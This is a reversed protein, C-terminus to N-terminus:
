FSFGIEDVGAFTRSASTTLNGALLPILFCRFLCYIPSTVLIRRVQGKIGPFQNSEILDGAILRCPIKERILASMTHRRGALFNGIPLCLTCDNVIFFCSGHHEVRFDLYLGRIEFFEPFCARVVNWSVQGAPSDYSFACHTDIPDLRSHEWSTYLGARGTCHAETVPFLHQFLCVFSQGFYLCFVLVRHQGIRVIDSRDIEQDILGFFIVFECHCLIRNSNGPLHCEFTKEPSEAESVDSLFGTGIGNGKTVGKLIPSRPAPIILLPTNWSPKNRDLTGFCAWKKYCASPFSVLSWSDHRINFRINAYNKTM